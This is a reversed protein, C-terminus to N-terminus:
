GAKEEYLGAKEEYRAAGEPEFVSGFFISKRRRLMAQMAEEMRARVERSIERVVSPDDAAEPPYREAVHMPALFQTHWKSPLPVPALPWTPTLPFFPWETRRKWWGWNLKGIIPFTEASGVTVFPVIPAGHRLAMKVFEDRGFKGLRYADRYLAFAGRIGEPYIALIEDRALLRDANEQCAIVGGLKTHFNFLFPFKILGPHILFRPYRRLERALLHLTMVADWPMFGRHVGVLLARGERPLHRLGDVEVRWYRDHLFKFLTRGFADIYARDMGFDDFAESEARSVAHGEPARTEGARADSGNSPALFERLAEASTRRPSFGLETKLKENSVTWSYRVYDLQEISHCLGARAPAFRALRQLTRPLPLRRAGALRLAKRLPMAGDPAVNYVGRARREVVSCVAGALDKPSLLQISPDYGALTVALGRKLLRSFYDAGDASPMAAPRLIVLRTDGSEGLYFAALSELALWRNAPTKNEQRLLMRSEPLFGTNHHSAGYVEASSLLVFQGVGARATEKFIAEADALDPASRRRAEFPPSYVVTDINQEALLGARGGSLLGAFGDEAQPARQCTEVARSERLRSVVLEAVGEREDIVLVRAM